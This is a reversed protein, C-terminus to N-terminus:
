LWGYCQPVIKLRCSDQEYHFAAIQYLLHLYDTTATAGASEFVTQAQDFFELTDKFRQQSRHVNGVIM